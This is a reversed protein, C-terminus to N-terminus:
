GASMDITDFRVDDELQKLLANAEYYQGNGILTAAQDVTATTKELPTVAMTFSVDIDAAKLTATASKRDGAQLHENAKRVAAKKEPTTALDEGVVLQGDIPLWAIPQGGTTSPTGAGGATTPSAVLEGDAKLYATDDAKAAKLSAQAKAILSKASGPEADFIAIRAAHIDRFATAGDTSLKGLDKDVVAETQTAPKAPEAASATTIATSALLTAIVISKLTM